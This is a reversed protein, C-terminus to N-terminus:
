HNEIGVSPVVGRLDDAIFGADHNARFKESRDGSCSVHTAGIRDSKYMARCRLVTAGNEDSM